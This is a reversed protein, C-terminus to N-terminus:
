EHAVASLADLAARAASELTHQRGANLAAERAAASLPAVRDDIDSHRARIEWPKHGHGSRHRLEEAAGLLETATESQGVQGIIV